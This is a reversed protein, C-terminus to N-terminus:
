SSTEEELGFSSDDKVYLVFLYTHSHHKMFVLNVHSFLRDIQVQNIVNKLKFNGTKKKLVIIFLM